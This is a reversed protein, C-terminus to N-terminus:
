FIGDAHIFFIILTTCIYLNVMTGFVAAFLYGLSGVISTSFLFIANSGLGSWIPVGYRLSLVIAIAVAAILVLKILPVRIKDWFHGRKSFATEVILENRAATIFASGLWFLTYVALGVTGWFLVITIWSIVQNDAYYKLSAALNKPDGGTTSNIVQYINTWNLLLILVIAGIFYGVLASLSPKLFHRARKIEIDRLEAEESVATDSAQQTIQASTQPTVLYQENEAM